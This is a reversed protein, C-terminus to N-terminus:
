SMRGCSLTELLAFLAGLNLRKGRQGIFEIFNIGNIRLSPPNIWTSISPWGGKEDPEFYNKSLKPLKSNKATKLKQPWKSPRFSPKEPYLNEIINLPNPQDGL